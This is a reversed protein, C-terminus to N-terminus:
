KSNFLKEKESEINNPNVYNLMEIKKILADIEHDIEFLKKNKVSVADKM